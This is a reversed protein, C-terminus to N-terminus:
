VQSRMCRVCIEVVRSHQGIVASLVTFFQYYYLKFSPYVNNCESYSRLYMLKSDNNLELYNVNICLVM